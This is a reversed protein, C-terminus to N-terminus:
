SIERQNLKEGQKQTDFMAFKARNKADLFFDYDYSDRLWSAVLVRRTPFPAVKNRSCRTAVTPVKERSM